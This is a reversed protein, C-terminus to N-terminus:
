RIRRLISEKSYVHAAIGGMFSKAETLKLLRFVMASHNM